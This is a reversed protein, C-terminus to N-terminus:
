QELPIIGVISGTVGPQASIQVAGDPCNDFTLAGGTTSDGLEQVLTCGLKPMETKYFEFVDAVSLSTEFSIVPGLLQVNSVDDPMPYDSDVVTDASSMCGNPPLIEGIPEDFGLYDLQYVYDGYYAEGGSMLENNGYGEFYLRVVSLTDQALYMRGNEITEVGAGAADSPDINDLTIEYVYTPISNITEDPLVRQAMGTLLGGNDLLIEFPNEQVGPSGSICDFGTYVIYQTDVIQTFTFIEENGLVATGYTYFMLESIYPEVQTRGELVVRSAVSEGDDAEADIFYDMQTLYTNFGTPQDYLTPDDLDIADPAVAPGGSGDLGDSGDSESSSGDETESNEAAGDGSGDAGDDSGSASDGTGSGDEGSEGSTSESSVDSPGDPENSSGNDTLGCALGAAALVMLVLWIKPNNNKM